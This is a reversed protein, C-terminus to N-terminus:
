VQSRCILAVARVVRQQVKSCRSTTPVKISGLMKEQTTLRRFLSFGQKSFFSMYCAETLVFKVFSNEDTKIGV